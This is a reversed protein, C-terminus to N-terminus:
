SCKNFAENYGKDWTLKCLPATLNSLKPIFPALYQVMGLFAQLEKLNQPPTIRHIAEVKAPDPHVGNEDYINGFFKVAAAKVQTKQLNFVLGHKHALQMLNHVDTMSKRQKGMYPSTMLLESADKLM